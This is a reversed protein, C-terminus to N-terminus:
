KAGAHNSSYSSNCCSSQFFFVFEFQILETGWAAVIVKAKDETKIRRRHNGGTGQVTTNNYLM